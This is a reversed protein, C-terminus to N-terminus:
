PIMEGNRTTQMDYSDFQTPQPSSQEVRKSVVVGDKIIIVYHREQL